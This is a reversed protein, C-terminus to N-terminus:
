YRNFLSTDMLLLMDFDIAARPSGKTSNIGVKLVVVLDAVEGVKKMHLGTVGDITCLIMTLMFVLDRQSCSCSGQSCSYCLVYETQGISYTM